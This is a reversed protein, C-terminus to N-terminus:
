QTLCKRREEEVQKKMAQLVDFILKKDNSSYTIEIISQSLQKISNLSM